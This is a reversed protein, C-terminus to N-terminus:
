LRTSIANVIIISYVRDSYVYINFLIIRPTTTTVALSHGADPSLSFDVSLVALALFTCLKTILLQPEAITNYMFVLYM